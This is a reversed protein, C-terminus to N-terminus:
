SFNIKLRSNYDVQTSFMSNLNVYIGMIATGSTRSTQSVKYEFELALFEGANFSVPSFSTALFVPRTSATGTAIHTQVVDNGIPTVTNGDASVKVLRGTVTLTAVPTTTTGEFIGSNATSGRQMFEFGSVTVGAAIPINLLYRSRNIAVAATIGSITASLASTGGGIFTNTTLTDLYGTYLEPWLHGQFNTSGISFIFNDSFDKTGDSTQMRHTSPPAWPICIMENSNYRRIRRSPYVLDGQNPIITIM